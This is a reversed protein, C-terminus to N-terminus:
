KEGKSIKKVLAAGRKLGPATLVWGKDKSGAFENGKDGLYKSHNTNDFCGASKCLERAAKDDFSSDGAELLKAIGAM